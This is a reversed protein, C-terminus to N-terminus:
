FNIEIEGNNKAIGSVVNGNAAKVQVGQGVSANTLARGESTISFGQGSTVMRVVQGQKIAVPSRLMEQRIVTGAGLSNAVTQGIVQATDTFIGPPLSALDGHIFTTDGGTIVRGQALPLAAILYDALVSVKAQVYITWNSPMACQVAVTTKGWARSGTPLSAQMAACNALKIHQDIAGVTVVVKGPAGQSQMLLYEEVKQKIIAPNQNEITAAMLQSYNLASFGVCCLLMALVRCFRSEDYKTKNPM